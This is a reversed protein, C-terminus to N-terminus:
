GGVNNEGNERTLFTGPRLDEKTHTIGEEDSSEAENGSFAVDQVKGRGEGGQSARKCLRSPTGATSSCKIHTRMKGEGVRSVIVKQSSGVV